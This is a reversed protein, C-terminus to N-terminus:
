RLLHFCNKLPSGADKPNASCIADGALLTPPLQSRWIGWAGAAYQLCVQYQRRAAPRRILQGFCGNNVHSILHASASCNQVQSLGFADQMSCVDDSDAVLRSNHSLLLHSTAEDHPGSM